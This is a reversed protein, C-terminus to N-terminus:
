TSTAQGREPYSPQTSQCLLTPESGPYPGYDMATGPAPGILSRESSVDANPRGPFIEKNPSLTTTIIGILPHSITREFMYLDVVSTRTVQDEATRAQTGTPPRTTLVM